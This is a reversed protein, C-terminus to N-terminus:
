YREISRQIKANIGYVRSFAIMRVFQLHNTGSDAQCLYDNLLNIFANKRPAYVTYLLGCIITSIICRRVDSPAVSLIITRFCDLLCYLCEASLGKCDCQLRVPRHTKSEAISHHIDSDDQSRGLRRQFTDSGNKRGGNYGFSNGDTSAAAM